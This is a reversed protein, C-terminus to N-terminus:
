ASGRRRGPRWSRVAMSAVSAQDQLGRRIVEQRLAEHFRAIAETELTGDRDPPLPPPPNSCAGRPVVCARARRCAPEPCRRWLKRSTGIVMDIRRMMEHHLATIDGPPSCSEADAAVADPAPRPAKGKGPDAAPQQKTKSTRM